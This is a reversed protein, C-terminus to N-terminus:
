GCLVSISEELRLNLNNFMLVVFCCLELNIQKNVSVCLDIDM